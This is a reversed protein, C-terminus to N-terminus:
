LAARLAAATAQQESLPIVSFNRQLFLREPDSDPYRPVVHVHMHPVHQGAKIGNNQFVNAACAGFAVHAARVLRRALRHLSALEADSADLITERHARPIVLTAGHEYQRHNILAVALDDELVRACELEGTVYKCFACSAYPALEFPM